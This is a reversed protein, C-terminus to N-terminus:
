LLVGMEDPMKDKKSLNCFSCAIALNSPRHAGGKSLPVIHDVHRKGIQILKGCLYCRVRPDEKARRYVREIETTDGMVAGVLMAKRTANWALVTPMNERRYIRRRETAEQTRAYERHQERLRDINNAYFEASKANRETRHAARYALRRDAHVSDYIVTSAKRNEREKAQEEYPLLMRRVTSGSCGVRKGIERFSLGSDRLTRMEDVDM